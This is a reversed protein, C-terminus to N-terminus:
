MQGPICFYGPPWMIVITVMKSNIIIVNFTRMKENGVVPRVSREYFRSSVGNDSARRRLRVM